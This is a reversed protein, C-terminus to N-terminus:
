AIGMFKALEASFRVPTRAAIRALEAEGELETLKRKHSTTGYSDRLDDSLAKRREIPVTSVELISRTKASEAARRDAALLPAMARDCAERVEAISPLWKSHAPLGSRPDCVQRAIAEPYSALVGAVGAMFMEPDSTESARYCGLMMTALGAAAKPPCNGESQQTLSRSSVSGLTLWRDKRRDRQNDWDEKDM